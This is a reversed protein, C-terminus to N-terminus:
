VHCSDGRVKWGVAVGVDVSYRQKSETQRPAVEDITWITTFRSDVEGETNRINQTNDVSFRFSFGEEPWEKDCGQNCFRFVPNLATRLVCPPNSNTADPMVTM